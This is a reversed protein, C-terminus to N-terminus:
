APCGELQVRHAAVSPMRLQILAGGLDSSGVHLSGGVLEAFRRVGALGLGQQAPILGFGPGSDAVAVVIQDADACVAVEVCGTTGAARIANDLMNRVARRLAIPDVLAVPVRERVLRVRCLAHLGGASWADAVVEGVDVSIPETTHASLIAAVWQAQLRLQELRPLVVATNLPDAEIIGLVASMASLAQRLDHELEQEHRHRRVPTFNLGAPSTMGNRRGIGMGILGGKLTLNRGVFQWGRGRSASERCLDETPKTAAVM